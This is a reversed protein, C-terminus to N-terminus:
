GTELGSDKGSSHALCERALQEESKQFKVLGYRLEEKEERRGEGQQTIDDCIWHGNRM